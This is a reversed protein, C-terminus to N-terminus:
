QFQTAPNQAIWQLYRDSQVKLDVYTSKAYLIEMTRADIDMNFPIAGQEFFEGMNKMDPDLAINFNIKFRNVWGDLDEKTAGRNQIPGDGLAQFLVVGKAELEKAVGVAEETEQQCPQCWVGAVSIHILKYKRQEPDFFNALAITQLGKSMDGNRYGLFKFNKMVSGPTGGTRATRGLNRTPYAQGYENVEPGQLDGTGTLGPDQNSSGGSCAASVALIVVGGLASLTRIGM